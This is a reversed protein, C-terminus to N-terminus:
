PGTTKKAFTLILWVYVPDSLFLEKIVSYRSIFWLLTFVSGEFQREYDLCKELIGEPFEKKWSDVDSLTVLKSMPIGLHQFYPFDYTQDPSVTSWTIGDVWSSIRIRAPRKLLESLDLEISHGDNESVIHSSLYDAPQKFSNTQHNLKLYM